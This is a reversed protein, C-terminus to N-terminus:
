KHKPGKTPHNPAPTAAKVGAYKILEKSFDAPPKFGLFQGKVKGNEDLFLITPTAEIKYKEAIPATEKKDMDMKLPVVQGM